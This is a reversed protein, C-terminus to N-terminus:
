WRTVDGEQDNIIRRFVTQGTKLMVRVYPLCLGCRRGFDVHGQLAEVTESRTSRAVEALATFPCDFCTCRDIRM